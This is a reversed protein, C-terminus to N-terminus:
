PYAGVTRRTRRPRSAAHPGKAGVKAARIREEQAAALHDELQMSTFEMTSQFRNLGRLTRKLDAIREELKAISEEYEDRVSKLEM